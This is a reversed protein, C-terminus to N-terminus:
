SRFRWSLLSVRASYPTASVGIHLLSCCRPARWCCWWSCVLASKVFPVALAAILGVAASAILLDPRTSVARQPWFGGWLEPVGGAETRATVRTQEPAAAAVVEPGRLNRDVILQPLEVRVRAGLGSTPPMVRLIWLASRVATSCVCGAPSPWGLAPEAVKMGPWPALGSSSETAIRRAIGPGSDTIDLRWWPDADPGTDSAGVAYAHVHVVGGPPSHRLANALLNTVLQRLRLPDAEVVLEPPEVAMTFSVERQLDALDEVAASLFDSLGMRSVALETLGADLRSLDLLDSVLTSLRKTQGLAQEMAAQDAVEVGDAMNELRASLATLPTRLEHSVNAVLERRERDVEALDRAMLNFAASLDGIEDRSTTAIRGSYDGAAMQRAAKTMARLPSTMGVALLQTVGLALAITVPITLIAPVGGTAGVTAIIAAM